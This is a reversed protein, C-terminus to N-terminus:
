TQDAPYLDVTTYSRKEKSIKNNFLVPLGEKRIQEGYGEDELQTLQDTLVQGGFYFRKPDEKIIFIVYPKETKSDKTFDYDVITVPTGFLSKQDGKERDLMIPSQIQFEKARARLDKRLEDKEFKEM